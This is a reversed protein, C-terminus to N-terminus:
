IGEITGEDNIYVDEAAPRVPLGPMRMIPGALPVVFGAGSSIEVDRITIDFGKPWGLKKPDDSISSQTKAVCVFSNGFGSKEYLAIKRRALGEFVVADAGYVNKAIKDIKDSLSDEQDYIFRFDSSDNETMSIIKEALEGGGSGGEAVVLSVAAEIGVEKCYAEVIEVEENTDSPFRNIAVIVPLGFNRMNEVHYRLNQLGGRVADLNEVEPTEPNGGGHLKLARITAVLVVASPQIGAVRCKINLFKEAGLDSGFGAETLVYDALKLSLKTAIVSSTGHAINGFPGTHVFAPTGELTQVLNPHIADKLLATLAGTSKLESALIPKQDPTYGTVIKGLRTELDSLSSSLGLIAMIESAATIQFGSERPIGGGRGGLGLLINRLARDNMDFCRKFTINRTDYGLKNGHHIHNDILAALLNNAKEIASFDGTFHM